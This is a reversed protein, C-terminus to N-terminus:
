SSSRPLWGKRIMNGWGSRRRLVSIYGRIRLFSVFQRYGFNELVSMLVLVVRDRVSFRRVIDRGLLLATVSSIVGLPVAVAFVLLLLGAPVVGTLAAVILFLLGQAEIWPGLLEFLAYYPFGILGMSGYRRNALLRGHYAMTDILGRQWRDRQGALIRSQEPVETWCNAHAAYQIRAARGQRRLERSIRIVLEMDEAVTDKGFAEAGTLYGRASVVDRRRFLGFAGSIIM